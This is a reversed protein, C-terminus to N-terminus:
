NKFIVKWHQMKSFKENHVWLNRVLLKRKITQLPRMGVSMSGRSITPSSKWSHWGNIFNYTNKIGIVDKGDTSSIAPARPTLSMKTVQQHFLVPEQHWHCRQLGHINCSRSHCNCIRQMIFSRCCRICIRVWIIFINFRWSKGRRVIRKMGAM